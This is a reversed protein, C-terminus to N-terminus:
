ASILVTASTAADTMVSTPTAAHTMAAIVISVGGCMAAVATAAMATITMAMTTMALALGPRGTAMDVVLVMTRIDATPIGTAMIDGAIVITGMIATPINTVTIAGFTGEVSEGTPSMLWSTQIRRM